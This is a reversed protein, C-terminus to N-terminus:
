LGWAFGAKAAILTASLGADFDASDLNLSFRPLPTLACDQGAAAQATTALRGPEGQRQALTIEFLLDELIWRAVSVWGAPRRGTCVIAIHGARRFMDATFALRRENERMQDQTFALECLGGTLRGEDLIVTPYDRRGLLRDLKDAIANCAGPCEGTIWIVPHASFASQANVSQLNERYM